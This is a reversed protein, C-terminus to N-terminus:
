YSPQSRSERERESKKKMSRYKGKETDHTRKQKKLKEKRGVKREEINERKKTYKDNSLIETLRLKQKRMEGIHSIGVVQFGYFHQYILGYTSLRM